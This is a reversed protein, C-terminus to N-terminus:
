RQDYIVRLTGDYGSIGTKFSAPVGGSGGFRRIAPHM